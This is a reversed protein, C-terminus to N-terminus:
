GKTHSRDQLLSNLIVKIIEMFFKRGNIKYINPMPITTTTDQERLELTENTFDIRALSGTAQRFKGPNAILEQALYADLLKPYEMYAFSAIQYYDTDCYFVTFRENLRMERLLILSDKTHDDPILM